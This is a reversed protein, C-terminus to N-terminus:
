AAMRARLADKSAADMWYGEGRRNRVAVGLRHRIRSIFVKLVETVPPDARDGYLAAMLQEYSPATRNLLIGLVRRESQSLPWEPPFDTRMGMAEELAAVRAELAEVRDDPTPVPWAALLLESRHLGSMAAAADIRALVSRAVRLRVNVRQETM